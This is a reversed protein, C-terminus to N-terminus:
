FVRPVRHLVKGNIWAEFVLSNKDGATGGPDTGIDQPPKGFLAGTDPKDIEICM